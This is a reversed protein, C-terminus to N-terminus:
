NLVGGFKPMRLDVFYEIERPFVADEESRDGGCDAPDAMVKRRPQPSREERTFIWGGNEYLSFVSCFAAKAEGVQM